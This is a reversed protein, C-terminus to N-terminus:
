IGYSFGNRYRGKRRMADFRRAARIKGSAAAAAREAVKVSRLLKGPFPAADAVTQGPDATQGISRRQDSRHQGRLGNEPVPVFRDISEGRGRAASDRASKIRRIRMADDRDPFRLATKQFILHATFNPIESYFIHIRVSNGCVVFTGAFAHEASQHNPCIM